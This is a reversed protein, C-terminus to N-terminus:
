KAIVMRKTDMINGNVVLSYSYTGAAITGAKIQIEGVGTQGLRESHILKGKADFINVVANTADTPVLM